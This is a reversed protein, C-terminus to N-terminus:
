LIKLKKLGSRFQDVAQRAQYSNINFNAEHVLQNRFRHAAYLKGLFQYKKCALSLRQQFSGGTFHMDQLVQDFLKDAEIVAIKLDSMQNSQIKKDIERWQRQIDNKDLSYLEPSRHFFNKIRQIPRYVIWWAIVIVGGIYLWMKLPLSPFDLNIQM